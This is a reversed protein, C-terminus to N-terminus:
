KCDGMQAVRLDNRQLDIYPQGNYNLWFYTGGDGGSDFLRFTLCANRNVSLCQNYMFQKRSVYNEESRLITFNSSDLLDWTVEHSKNGVGIVDFILLIQLFAKNKCFQDHCAGIIDVKKSGGVTVNNDIPKGDLELSYATRIPGMKKNDEMDLLRLFFCDNESHPICSEYNGIHLSGYNDGQEIITNNGNLLNWSFLFGQSNGTMFMFDILSSGETCKTITCSGVRIRDLFFVEDKKTSVTSNNYSMTYSVGKGTTDRIVVHFCKDVPLCQYITQDKRGSGSDSVIKKFNSDLIAFYVEKRYNEFTVSFVMFSSGESSLCLSKKREFSKSDMVIEGYWRLDFHGNGWECCIGDGYFDEIQFIYPDKTQQICKTFNFQKNADDTTMKAGIILTGDIMLNWSIDQPFEDTMITFNFLVQDAECVSTSLSPRIELEYVRFLNGSLLGLTGLDSSACSLPANSSLFIKQEVTEPITLPSKVWILKEWDFYFISTLVTPGEAPASVVLKEGCSSLHPVYWGARAGPITIDQGMQVWTNNLLSYIRTPYTTRGGVALVIGDASIDLMAGVYHGPGSQNIDQGWQLWQKTYKHFRYVKVVSPINNLAFRSVAVVTGNSSTGLSIYMSQSTSHVCEGHDLWENTGSNYVFAQVACFPLTDMSQGRSGSVIIQNGDSSIRVLTFPNYLKIRVNIDNGKQYWDGRYENYKYVYVKGLEEKRLPTDLGIAIVSGDASLCYYRILVIKLEVTIVSGLQIWDENSIKKFIRIHGSLDSSFNGVAIVKGDASMSMLNTTTTKTYMNPLALHDKWKCNATFCKKHNKRNHRDLDVIYGRLCNRNGLLHFTNNYGSARNVTFNMTGNLSIGMMSGYGIGNFSDDLIKIAVCSNADRSQNTIAFANDICIEHVNVVNPLNNSESRLLVTVDGQLTINLLEWSLYEPHEHPIFTLRLKSMGEACYSNRHYVKVPDNSADSSFGKTSPIVVLDLNDNSVYMSKCDIPVSSISSWRENRWNFFQIRNNSSSHVVIDNGEDNVGIVANEFPIARLAGTLQETNNGSIKFTVLDGTLGRDNNANKTLVAISRGGQSLQIKSIDIRDLCKSIIVENYPSKYMYVCNKSSLVIIKGDESCSFQTFTKNQVNLVEKWTSFLNYREFFVFSNDDYLMCLSMGDNRLQFDKVRLSSNKMIALNSREVWLKKDWEFIHFSKDSIIAVTLTSLRERRNLINYYGSVEVKDSSPRLSTTVASGRMIWRSGDIDYVRVTSSVSEILALVRGNASLTVFTVVLGVFSSSEVRSSTKWCDNCTEFDCTDYGVYFQGSKDHGCIYDKSVCTDICCDGGDYDFERKNFHKDCFGNGSPPVQCLTGSSGTTCNCVNNSNCKADFYCPNATSCISCIVTTKRNELGDAKKWKGDVDTTAAYWRLDVPTMVDQPTDALVPESFFAGKYDSRRGHFTNNLYKALSSLDPSKNANRKKWDGLDDSSTIMWRKGVFFLLDHSKSTEPGIYVPHQYTKVPNTTNPFMMQTFNKSWTRTSIFPGFREDIELKTCAKEFMRVDYKPERDQCTMYFGIMPMWREDNNDIHKVFWDEKSVEFINFKQQHSVESSKIFIKEPDCEASEDAELAMAWVGEDKCYRFVMAKRKEVKANSNFSERYSKYIGSKLNTGQILYSGSYFSLRSDVRDDLQLYINQCLFEGSMQPFLVNSMWYTYMTTMLLGNIFIPQVIIKKFKAWIISFQNDGKVHIFSRKKYVLNEAELTAEKMRPGLVNQQALTFLANDFTTIFLMATFDKFLAVIDDSELVVFFSVLTLTLGGTTRLINPILWWIYDVGQRKFYSNYGNTMEVIPDWLADNVLIILFIVIGQSAHVTTEVGRPIVLAPNNAFSSNSYRDVYHKSITLMYSSIQICFVFWAAFAPFSWPNIMIFSFADKVTDITEIEPNTKPNLGSENMISKFRYIQENLLEIQIAQHSNQRNIKELDNVIRDDIETLHKAPVKDINDLSEDCNSSSRTTHYKQLVVASKSIEELLFIYKENSYSAKTNQFSEYLDHFSAINDKEQFFTSLFQLMEQKLGYRNLENTRYTILSQNLSQNIHGNRLGVKLNEIKGTKEANHHFNDHDATGIDKAETEPTSLTESNSCSDSFEKAVLNDLSALAELSSSAIKNALQDSYIGSSLCFIIDSISCGVFMSVNPDFMVAVTKNDNSRSSLIISRIKNAEDVVSLYEAVSRPLCYILLKKRKGDRNLHTDDLDDISSQRRLALKHPPDDLLDIGPSRKLEVKHIINDNACKELLDM